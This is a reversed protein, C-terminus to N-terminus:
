KKVECSIEAFLNSAVGKVSCSRLTDVDVAVMSIICAMLFVFVHGMNM